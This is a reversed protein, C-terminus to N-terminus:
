TQQRIVGGEDSSRTGGNCHEVVERTNETQFKFTQQNCHTKM